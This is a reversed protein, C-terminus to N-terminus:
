SVALAIMIAGIKWKSRTENAVPLSDIGECDRQSLPRSMEEDKPGSRQRGVAAVDIESMAIETSLSSFPLAHIDAAAPSSSM